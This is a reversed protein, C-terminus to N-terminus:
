LEIGILNYFNFLKSVKWILSFFFVFHNQFQKYIDTYHIM